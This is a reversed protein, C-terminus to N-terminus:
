HILSNVALTLAVKKFLAYFLQKLEKRTLKITEM